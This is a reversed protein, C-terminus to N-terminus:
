IINSHLLGNDRSETTVELSMFLQQSSNILTGNCTISGSLGYDDLNYSDSASSISTDLVMDYKFPIYIVKYLKTNSIVGDHKVIRHGDTRNIFTELDNQRALTGTIIFQNFVIRDGLSYEEPSFYSAMTIKIIDDTGDKEITALTLYDNMKSIVDGYPTKLVVKMNKLFGKPTPYFCMSLEGYKKYYLLKNNTKAYISNNINGFETYKNNSNFSYDGSNDRIIKDDDYKLIFASKNIENNSGYNLQNVDTLELVLYPLDSIRELRPNYSDANVSVNNTSIIGQNYLGNIESMNLYSDRIVLDVFKINTVNKFNMNISSNGGGNSNGPSFNISFNYMTDKSLYNIDKSNIFVLKREEKTKYEDKFEGQSGYGEFDEKYHLENFNTVFNRDAM